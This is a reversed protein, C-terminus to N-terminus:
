HLTLWCWTLVQGKLISFYSNIIDLIKKFYMFAAKYAHVCVVLFLKFLMFNEMRLHNEYM